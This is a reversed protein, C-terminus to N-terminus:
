YWIRFSTVTTTTVSNFSVSVEVSTVGTLDAANVNFTIQALGNENTSTKNLSEVRGDPYHLTIEVLGGTLPTNNQDKAIVYITQSEGNTLIASQTFAQVRIRSIGKNYELNRIPSLLSEDEDNYYFYQMGLSAVTIKANTPYEPKWILKAKEFSQVLRGESYELGSIPLGFLSAGNQAVYFDYFANCVPYSWGNEQHCNPTNATLNPIVTGQEYLLVGLNTLLVQSGPPNLPYLELRVNQFYQMLVGTDIDIFAETIPYGYVTRANENANYFALFEGSVYHGTEPFYLSDETQLPIPQTTIPQAYVYQSSLILILAFIGAAMWLWKKM